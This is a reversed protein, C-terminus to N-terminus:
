KKVTGSSWVQSPEKVDDDYDDDDDDYDNDDDDEYDDNDDDDHYYGPGWQSPEEADDLPVGRWDQQVKGGNETDTHVGSFKYFIWIMNWIIDYKTM